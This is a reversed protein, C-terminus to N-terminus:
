YNFPFLHPAVPSPPSPPFVPGTTGFGINMLTVDSLSTFASPILQGTPQPVLNLFLDSKVGFNSDVSSFILGLSTWRNEKRRSLRSHSWM